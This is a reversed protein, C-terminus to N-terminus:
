LNNNRINAYFAIRLSRDVSLSPKEPLLFWLLINAASSAPHDKGEKWGQHSMDPIGPGTNPNGTCPQCLCAPTPGTFLRPPLKPAPADTM